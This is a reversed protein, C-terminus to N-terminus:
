ARADCRYKQAHTHEIRYKETRVGVNTHTMTNWVNVALISLDTRLVSLVSGFM